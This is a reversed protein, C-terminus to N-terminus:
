KEEHDVLDYAAAIHAVNISANRRSSPAGFIAPDYNGGWVDDAPALIVDLWINGDLGRTVNEIHTIAIVHGNTLMLGFVWTDRMMHPIFWAPLLKQAAAIKEEVSM